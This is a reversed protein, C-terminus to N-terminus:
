QSKMSNAFLFSDNEFPGRGPVDTTSARVQGFDDPLLVVLDLAADADARAAETRRPRLAMDPDAHDAGTGVDDSVIVGHRTM